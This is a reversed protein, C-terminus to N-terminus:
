AKQLIQISLFDSLQESQSKSKFLKNKLGKFVGTSNEPKPNYTVVAELKNIHDTIVM